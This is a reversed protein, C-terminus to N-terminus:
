QIKIDAQILLRFGTEYRFTQMKNKKSFQFSPHSKNVAYAIKVTYIDIPHNKKFLYITSKLQSIADSVWNRQGTKLEVFILGENNEITLMGDCQSMENGVKQVIINHDVPTFLVEKAENNLVTAIWTSRNDIDSYALNGNDCIGFKTNKRYEEKKYINDFFNIECM